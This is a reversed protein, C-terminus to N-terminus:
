KRNEVKIWNGELTDIMNQIDEFVRANEKTIVSVFSVVDTINNERDYKFRWGFSFSKTTKLTLRNASLNLSIGLNTRETISPRNRTVYDIIDDLADEVKVITGNNFINDNIEPHILKLEDIMDFFNDFNRQYNTVVVNAPKNDRRPKKNYQPKM